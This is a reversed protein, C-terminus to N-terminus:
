SKSIEEDELQKEFLPMQEKEKKMQAIKESLKTLEEAYQGFTEEGLHLHNGNVTREAKEIMEM